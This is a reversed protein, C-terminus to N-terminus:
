CGIRSCGQFALVKLHHHNAPADVAHRHRPLASARSLVRKQDFLIIKSRSYGATGRADDM